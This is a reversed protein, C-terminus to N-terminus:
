GIAPVQGKRVERIIQDIEFPSLSTPEMALQARWAFLVKMKGAEQSQQNTENIIQNITIDWKHLNM